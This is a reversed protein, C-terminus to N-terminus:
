WGDHRHVDRQILQSLVFRADGRTEGTRGETNREVDIDRVIHETTVQGLRQRLRPRTATTTLSTAHRTRGLRVADETLDDCAPFRGLDPVFVVAQDDKAVVQAPQRDLQQNDRFFVLCLFLEPLVVHLAGGGEGDLEALLVRGATEPDQRIEALVAHLRLGM